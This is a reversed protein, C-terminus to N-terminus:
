QAFLILYVTNSVSLFLLYGSFRIFLPTFYLIIYRCPPVVVGVPGTVMNYMILLKVKLKKLIM